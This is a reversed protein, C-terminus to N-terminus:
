GKKDILKSKAPKRINKVATETYSKLSEHNKRLSHASISIEEMKKKLLESIERNQERSKEIWNRILNFNETIEQNNLKSCLKKLSVESSNFEKQIEQEVPEIIRYIEDIEASLRDREALIIRLPDSEECNVAASIKVGESFYAEYRLLLEKQAQLIISIIEESIM